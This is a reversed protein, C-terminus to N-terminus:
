VKFDKIHRLIELIIHQYCDDDFSGNVFCYKQILSDYAALIKALAVRNGRIANCLTDHFEDKTMM